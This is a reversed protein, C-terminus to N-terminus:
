EPALYMLAEHSKVLQGSQAVIEVVTGAYESEIESFVKMAELLGVVQGVEVRDGAEVYPATDPGAARYFVGVMPAEVTIRKQVALHADMPLPELEARVAPQGLLAPEEAQRQPQRSLAPAYDAGRIVIRRGEEEVVLETLGRSEVLKILRAVEEMEFGLDAM